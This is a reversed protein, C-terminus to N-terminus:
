ASRLSGKSLGARHRSVSDRIRGYNVLTTSEADGEPDVSDLALLVWAPLAPPKEDSAQSV